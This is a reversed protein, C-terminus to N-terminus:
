GDIKVMKGKIRGYKSFAGLYSYCEDYNQEVVEFYEFKPSKNLTELISEFHKEDHFLGKIIIKDKKKKNSM